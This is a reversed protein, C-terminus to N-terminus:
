FQIERGMEGILQYFRTQRIGYEECLYATIWAVKHGEKKLRHYDEVMPVFRVDTPKISNRAMTSAVGEVAKLYELQTM